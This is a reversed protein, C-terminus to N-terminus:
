DDVSLNYYSGFEEAKEQLKEIQNKVELIEQETVERVIRAPAESILKGGPIDQHPLILTGPYVISKDGIVVGDSVNANKGILVNKGIRCGRLIVSQSILSDQSIVLPNEDSATLVAKNMVVVNDGIVIENDYACIIAGPWISCKRGIKVNGIIISHLNIYSSEDAEPSKSDYSIFNNM